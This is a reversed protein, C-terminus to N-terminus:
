YCRLFFTNCASGRMCDCLRGIRPGHKLACREGVDCRPIISARKEPSLRNDEDNLLDEIAEALHTTLLQEESGALRNDLATHPQCMVSLVSICLSFYLATRIRNM